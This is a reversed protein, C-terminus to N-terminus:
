IKPILELRKKVRKLLNGNLNLCILSFPKLITLKTLFSVKKGIRWEKKFDRKFLTERKIKKIDFISFVDFFRSGGFKANKASKPFRYMENRLPSVAKKPRKQTPPVRM